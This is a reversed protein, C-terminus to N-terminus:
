MRRLPGQDWPTATVKPPDIAEAAVDLGLPLQDVHRVGREGMRPRASEPRYASRWRTDNRAYPQRVREPLQLDTTTLRAREHRRM